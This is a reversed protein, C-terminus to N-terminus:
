LYGCSVKGAGNHGLLAFIQNEYMKFSLNNVAVQTGFTKKLRDLIVTPAGALKENVPEEPISQSGKELNGASRASTDALQIGSYVEETSVTNPTPFWYSPMFLFYFPKAVGVDSPWVQGFYWAL